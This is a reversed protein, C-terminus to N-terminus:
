TMFLLKILVAAQKQTARTALREVSTFRIDGHDLQGKDCKAHINSIYVNDDVPRAPHAPLGLQRLFWIHIASISLIPHASLAGDVINHRVKM